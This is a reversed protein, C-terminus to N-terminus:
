NVAIDHITICSRNQKKFGPLAVNVTEVFLCRHQKLMNIM